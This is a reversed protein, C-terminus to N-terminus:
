GRSRAPPFAQRPEISRDSEYPTLSKPWQAARLAIEIAPRAVPVGEPDRDVKGPRSLVAAKERVEGPVRSIARPIAPRAPASGKAAEAWLGQACVSDDAREQM